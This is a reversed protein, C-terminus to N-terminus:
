AKGGNQPKLCIQAQIQAYNGIPAKPADFKHSSYLKWTATYEKM